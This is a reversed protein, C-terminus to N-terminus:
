RADIKGTVAATILATRYEQLREIAEEAKRMLADLKATQADLYDAIAQQEPIPPEAFPLDAIEGQDLIPLTASPAIKRLTTEMRKLQYAAFRAVIRREDIEVATIQQNCSATALLSSVKGLTAGITVVMITGERFLRAAGEQAASANLLKVPKTLAIEDGFSGPGFWPVTGEEYYRDESTPPTSGTQIRKTRRRLRVADWHVPIDGLWPLGSPKLKAKPDLGRTVAHSILATRKEQLREILERKKAVLTDIRGTERDLFAAIARQEPLPPQPFRFDKCFEPPVRKQGGAGYMEAEGLKRFPDSIAAYFAFRADTQARARLVHLETTGFAAGNKLRNAQAAKGNEFCPTIKAVIVDEDQFETYGSGFEGIPRSDSLNISGDTGIADMPVFSVDDDATLVRLRPSPPNVRLVFRARKVQWHAPVDGLWPVGSPKCTSYPKARM